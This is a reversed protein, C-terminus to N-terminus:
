PDCLAPATGCGKSCQYLPSWMGAGYETGALRWISGRCILPYTFPGTGGENISGCKRAGDTCGYRPGGLQARIADDTRNVTDCTATGGTCLPGPKGADVDATAADISPPAAEPAPPAAEPAQGAETGGDVGPTPPAAEPAAGEGAETTAGDPADPVARDRETADPAADLTPPEGVPPADLAPAGCATLCVLAFLAARKM